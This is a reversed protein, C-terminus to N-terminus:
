GWRFPTTMNGAPDVYPAPMDLFAPDYTATSQQPSAQQRAEDIKGQLEENQAKLQAIEAQIQRARDGSTLMDAYEANAKDAAQKLKYDHLGQAAATLGGTLRDYDVRAATTTDPRALNLGSWALNLGM